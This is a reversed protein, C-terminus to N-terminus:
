QVGSKGLCCRKYKKGSGCPCPDNRGRKPKVARRAPALKFFAELVSSGLRMRAEHKWGEEDDIHDEDEPDNLPQDGALVAIPFVPEMAEIDGIWADDLEVGQLYGLCWDEIEQTEDPSPRFVDKSPLGASITNYMRLVLGLHPDDPGDPSRDGMVIPLWESPPILSPATAVATLFGVCFDINPGGPVDLVDALTAWEDESLARALDNQATV